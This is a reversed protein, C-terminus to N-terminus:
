LLDLVVCPVTITMSDGIVLRHNRSSLKLDVRKLWELFERRNPDHREVEGVENDLYPQRLVFRVEFPCGMTTFDFRVHQSELKDLAGVFDSLPADRLVAHRNGELAFRFQQFAGVPPDGAKMCPLRLRALYQRVAGALKSSDSDYLIEVNPASAPDVFSFRAFVVGELTQGLAGSPYDPLGENGKLCELFHAKSPGDRRVDAWMVKRGDGPDFAFEQTALLPADAAVLCPLRYKSVYDLVADSFATGASEYFVEVRPADTASVFTLRVRVIGGNKQEVQGTPYRLAEKRDPAVLCRLASPTSDFSPDDALAAVSLLTMWAAILGRLCLGLKPPSARRPPKTV